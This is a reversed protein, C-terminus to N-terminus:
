HFNFNWLTTKNKARNIKKTIPQHSVQIQIAIAQSNHTIMIPIGKPNMM